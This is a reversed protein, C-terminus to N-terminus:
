KRKNGPIKVCRMKVYLTFFILITTWSGPHAISLGSASTPTIDTAEHSSIQVGSSGCTNKEAEKEGTWLFMTFYSQVEELSNEGQTATYGPPM